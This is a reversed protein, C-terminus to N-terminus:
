RLRRETRALAVGADSTLEASSSGPQTGAAEGRTRRLDEGHGTPVRHVVRVPLERRTLSPGLWGSQRVILLTVGLMVQHAQGPKFGGAEDKDPIMADPGGLRPVSASQMM